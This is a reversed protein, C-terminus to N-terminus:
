NILVRVGSSISFQNPTGGQRVLPSAAADGLLRRYTGNLTLRWRPSLKYETGAALGASVLGAQAHFPAFRRNALAEGPTVGFYTGAYTDDALRFRPGATLMWPGTNTVFDAGANILLGSESVVGKLAELRLRLWPAPWFNVFGGGEGAYGINRMGELGHGNGRASIIAAAIGFSAREGNYVALSAADDPAAFDDFQWPHTVSVNGSPFFALQQSGQYHPAATAQLTIRLTYGFLSAPEALAPAASLLVAAAAFLVTKM